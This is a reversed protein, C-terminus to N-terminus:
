ALSCVCGVSETSFSRKRARARLTAFISRESRRLISSRSRALPQTVGSFPDQRSDSSNKLLISGFGVDLFERRNGRFSDNSQGEVHAGTVLNDFGTGHSLGTPQRLVAARDLPDGPSPGVGSYLSCTAPDHGVIVPTKGMAAAVPTRMALLCCGRCADGREGLRPRLSSM